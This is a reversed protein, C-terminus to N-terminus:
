VSIKQPPKYGEHQERRLEVLTKNAQRAGHLYEQLEGAAKLIDSAEKTVQSLYYELCQYIQPQLEPFKENDRIQDMYMLIDKGRRSLDAFYSLHRAHCMAKETEKLNMRIHASLSRKSHIYKWYEEPTM